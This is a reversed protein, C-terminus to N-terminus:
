WSKKICEPGIGNNISEDTTLTRGCRCCKGEHQIAYGSPLQKGEVVQKIAWRIVKVPITDDTFKSSKTLRVSHTVPEYVGLYTYSSENDPGTLLGVFLPQTDNTHSIRYTYHSDKGNSVTFVARGGSFFKADHIDNM